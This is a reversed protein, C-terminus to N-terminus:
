FIKYRKLHTYSDVIIVQIIAYVPVAIFMGIAGALKGGILVALLVIAPHVNVSRSILIPKALVNDIVQVSTLIILMWLLGLGPPDYTILVVLAIPFYAIFPGFFPISNLLGNILGLVVAFKVGMIAFAIWTLIGIVASEILISLIYNGFSRDIRYSLSLTMEFYRNPITEILKKTFAAGDKLLFFTMFPVVIALALVNMAGAILKQSQQLFATAGAGIRSIWIEAQDPEIAILGSVGPLHNDLWFTFNRHIGIFDFERINDYLAVGESIITPVFFRVGIGILVGGLVFIATISIVRRVGLHELYAVCPKFVYTLVISIVLVVLLDSILPFILIFTIATIVFLILLFLRRYMPNVIPTSLSM